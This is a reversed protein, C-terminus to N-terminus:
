PKLITKNRFNQKRQQKIGFIQTANCIYSSSNYIHPFLIFKTYSEPNIKAKLNFYFQIGSISFFYSVRTTHRISLENQKWMYILARRM